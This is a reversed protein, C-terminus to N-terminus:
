NLYLFLNTVIFYSLILLIVFVFVTSNAIQTSPNRPTFIAIYFLWVPVSIGLMALIVLIYYIM